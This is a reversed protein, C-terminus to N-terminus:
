EEEYKTCHEDWNKISNDKMCIYDGDGEDQGYKCDRCFNETYSDIFINRGNKM